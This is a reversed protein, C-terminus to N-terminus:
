YFSNYSNPSCIKLPFLTSYVKAQSFLGCKVVGGSTIGCFSTADHFTPQKRLSFWGLNFFKIRSKWKQGTVSLVITLPVFGTYTETTFHWEQSLLLLWQDPCSKLSTCCADM